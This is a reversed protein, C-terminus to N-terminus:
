SLETKETLSEDVGALHTLREGVAGAREEGELLDVADVDAEEAHVHLLVAGVRRHGVRATHVDGVEVRDVEEPRSVESRRDIVLNKEAIEVVHLLHAERESVDPRTWGALAVVVDEVAMWRHTIGKDTTSAPLNGHDLPYLAQSQLCPTTSEFVLWPWTTKRNAKKKKKEVGSKINLSGIRAM